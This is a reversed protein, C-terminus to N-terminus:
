EKEAVSIDQLMLYRILMNLAIPLRNSNVAFFWPKLSSHKTEQCQLFWQTLSWILSFASLADPYLVQHPTNGHQFLASQFAKSSVEMYLIMQFLSKFECRRSHQLPMKLKKGTGRDGFLSQSWWCLSESCSSSWSATQSTFSWVM